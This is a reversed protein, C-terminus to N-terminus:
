TLRAVIVPPHTPVLSGGAPEQTVMITNVGRLNGPVGVDATGSATVSFLARTPAPPQHGRKVWVEYIRGAPPPPLRSVILEARGGAIRLRASGPVGTVAAQIVKAPRSGASGLEIGGVVALAALAAALGTALAPRSVLRAWAPWVSSARRARGGPESRVDRMIRRRLERPAPQQPAAMPLADVVQRFAAVEDRCVACSDLHRRFDEAEAPELAGLVYVAPDRGCDHTESTFDGTNM